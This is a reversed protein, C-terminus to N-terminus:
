KIIKDVKYDNYLIYSNLILNDIRKPIWNPITITINNINKDKDYNNINKNKNKNKVITKEFLECNYCNNTLKGYSQNKKDYDRYCIYTRDYKKEPTEPTKPEKPEKSENSFILSSETLSAM